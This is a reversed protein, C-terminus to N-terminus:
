SATRAPYIIVMSPHVVEGISVESGADEYVEFSLRHDGLQYDTYSMHGFPPLGTTGRSEFTAEGQEERVYRLGKFEVIKGTGVLDSDELEEWMVLELDPDEEVTLYRRRGSGDDLHNAVWRYPGRKFILIGRVTYTVGNVEVNDAVDIKRPDGTVFTETAKFPDQRPQPANKAKEAKIAKRLNNAMWLVILVIVVFIVFKV